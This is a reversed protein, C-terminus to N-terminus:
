TIIGTVQQRWASEIEANTKTVFVVTRFTIEKCNLEATVAVGQAFGMGEQTQVLMRPDEVTVNTGDDSKLRGVFEGSLTLVTVIDGTEM